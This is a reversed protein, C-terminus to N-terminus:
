INLTRNQYALHEGHEVYGLQNTTITTKGITFDPVAQHSHGYIWFAADTTEIFDFLEVIFASNLESHRYKEPYNFYTPIHHSVVVTTKDTKTNLENTLYTRCGEHLDNYDKTTIPGGNNYILRFDAMSKQIIWEKAPDIKSWLTSFILRINNFQVTTNNLLTINSRIRETFTGTRQAIDSRYYEHNGAVWYTHEFSDAIFDFFAKEKEIETFPIIDGALILIEGEPKLPNLKFYKKNKPFELHLDSCYQIRM